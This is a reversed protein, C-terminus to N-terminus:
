LLDSFWELPNGDPRRIGIITRRNARFQTSKSYDSTYEECSHGNNEVDHELRM